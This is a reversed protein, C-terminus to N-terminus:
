NNNNKKTEINNFFSDVFRRYYNTPLNTITTKFALTRINLAVFLCIYFLSYFFFMFTVVTESM